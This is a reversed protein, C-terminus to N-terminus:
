ERWACCLKAYDIGRDWSLGGLRDAHGFVGNELEIAGRQDLTAPPNQVLDGEGDVRPLMDRDHPRIAGPFGRQDLEQGPLVVGEVSFTPRRGDPEEPALPP